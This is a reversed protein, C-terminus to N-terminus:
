RRGSYPNARDLPRARPFVYARLSAYDSPTAPFPAPPPMALAGSSSGRNGFASRRGSALADGAPRVDNAATMSQSSPVPHQLALEPHAGGPHPTPAVSGSACVAPTQTASRLTPPAVLYDSPAAAIGLGVACGAAAALVAVWTRHRRRAARTDTLRAQTESRWEVPPTIMPTPARAARAGLIREVSVQSMASRAFPKLARALDQVSAFRSSPDKALCRGIIGVLELPVLTVLSSIPVPAKSCVAAILEPANRAPLPLRGTLLEHMIIGLSWIDSRADASSPDKIQEPAMYAPSGLMSSQATFDEITLDSGTLKSVGFDLVKILSSGDARTSLMLNAPKLDRHVIGARHAEGLAELVQLTYEVARELPLPGHTALHAALDTGELHEMILFPIGSPLTGVDMVSVVHESRLCAAARAERLFRAAVDPHDAFEARLLKIAVTQRLQVHRAAVVLSMAGSGLVKSIEFRGDILTGPVIQFATTSSM